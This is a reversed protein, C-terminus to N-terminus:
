TFYCMEEIGLGREATGKSVVLVKLQRSDGNDASFSLLTRSTMMQLHTWLEDLQKRTFSALLEGIDFPDERSNKLVLYM